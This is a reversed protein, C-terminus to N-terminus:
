SDIIFVSFLSVHPWFMGTNRLSQCCFVEPDNNKGWVFLLYLRTNPHSESHSIWRVHGDWQITNWIVKWVAKSPIISQSDKYGRPHLQQQSEKPKHNVPGVDEKSDKFSPCWAAFHHSKLWVKIGYRAANHNPANCQTHVYIYYTYLMYIYYVYIHKWM